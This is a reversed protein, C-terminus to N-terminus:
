REKARELMGTHVVDKYCSAQAIELEQPSIKRLKEWTQSYAVNGYKAWEKISKFVKEYSFPKEVLSENKEKQCIICLNFDLNLKEAEVMGSDIANGMLSMLALKEVHDTFRFPPDRFQHNFGSVM